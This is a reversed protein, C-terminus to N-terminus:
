FVTIHAKKSQERRKYRNQTVISFYRLNSMKKEFFFRRNQKINLDLKKYKNLNIQM